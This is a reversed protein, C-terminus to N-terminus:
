KSVGENIGSMFQMLIGNQLDRSYQAAYQNDLFHYHQVHDEGITVEGPEPMPSNRVINPELSMCDAITTSPAHKEFVMGFINKKLYTLVTENKGVSRWYGDQYKEAQLSSVSYSKFDTPTPFRLSIKQDTIEYSMLEQPGRGVYRGGYNRDGVWTVFYRKGNVEPSVVISTDLPGYRYPNLDSTFCAIYSKSLDAAFVSTCLTVLSILTLITKM